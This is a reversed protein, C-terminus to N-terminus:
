SFRLTDFMQRADTKRCVRCWSALDEPWGKRHNLWKRFHRVVHLTSSSVFSTPRGDVLANKAVHAQRLFM